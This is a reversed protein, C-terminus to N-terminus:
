AQPVIFSLHMEAHRFNLLDFEERTMRGFIAHPHLPTTTRQYRAIAQELAIIGASSAPNGPLYVAASPPLKFGPKMPRTLFRKKVLPGVLRLYWPSKFPAGDIAYSVAKSLHECIQDLSWNGLQRTPTAALHRVDDLLDQYSSFHPERRAVAQKTDVPRAQSSRVSDVAM